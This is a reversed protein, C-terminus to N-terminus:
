LAEVLTTRKAGFAWCAAAKSMGGELATRIAALKEGPIPRPRGGRRGRTAAAKGGAM